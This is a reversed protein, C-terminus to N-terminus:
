PHLVIKEASVADITKGSVDVGNAKLDFALIAQYEEPKLSGPKKAPMKKSIFDLVDKATHFTVKRIKAGARPELPLAEKGVLPPTKKKGEGKEGHCGACHKAFLQEGDSVQDAFAFGRGALLGGAIGLGVVFPRAM